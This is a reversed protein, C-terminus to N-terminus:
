VGSASVPKERIFVTDEGLVDFVKMWAAKIPAFLWGHKNEKYYWKGYSVLPDAFFVRVAFKVVKSARMLPVLVTALKYYGKRNRETLMEDRYKRVVNDMTGDGYRAELM